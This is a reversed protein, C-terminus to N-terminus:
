PLLIEKPVLSPVKLRGNGLQGYYNDGWCHIRGSTSLACTARPTTRVMAIPEPLGVVKVPALTGTTTGDGAQGFANHGWCYVAGSISCACGRQGDYFGNATVATTTAVQVVPEPTVVPEPLARHLDLPDNSALDYKGWCYAVGNAVACASEVAVDISSVGTLVIPKPYPDPFLSSVRGLPPTAGWSLVTGDERLVFSARGVFLARIAPGPPLAIVQPQRVASPDDGPAPVAIQGDGNTGWCVVGGDVVACYTAEPAFYRRSSGAVLTAPPVPVKVPSLETTLTVAGDRLNPGTGWCWTAGAEDIACAHDLAVIDSLGVVRAPTASDIRAADEGRGLQGDSNEGWCLVTGDHLLACFGEGLTTVLATACTPSNCVISLPAADVPAADRVAPPADVGGGESPDHAGRGGDAEAGLVVDERDSSCSATM